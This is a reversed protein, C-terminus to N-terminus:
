TFVFFDLLFTVGTPISGLGRMVESVLDLVRGDPSLQCKSM